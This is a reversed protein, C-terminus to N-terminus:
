LNSPLARCPDDDDNESCYLFGRWGCCVTARSFASICIADFTLSYLKVCWGVCHLDSRLRFIADFICLTFVFLQTTHHMQHFSCSTLPLKDYNLVDTQQRNIQDLSLLQV